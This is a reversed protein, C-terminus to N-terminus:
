PVILFDSYVRTLYFTRSNLNFKLSDPTAFEPYRHPMEVGDMYLLSDDFAEEKIFAYNYNLLVVPVIGTNLYGNITDVLQHLALTDNAIATDIHGCSRVMCGAGCTLM